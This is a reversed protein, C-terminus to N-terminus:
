TTPSWPPLATPVGAVSTWSATYPPTTATGIKTAGNFFEVKAPSGGVATANAALPITAPATFTAGNTPSTLTVTPPASGTVTINVATSMGSVGRADVATATPSLPGGSPTPWVFQYPATTATGIKTAGAYFDVHDISSDPSLTTATLTLPTSALVPAGPSPATMVVAPPRSDLIRVFAPASATVYGLNDYAKAVLTFDGVAPNTWSASFPPATPAAIVVGGAVYEVRTITAQPSSANVSLPVSGAANFTQGTTPTLLSVQPSSNAADIIVTVPAPNGTVSDLPLATEGLTDTVRAYIVHRGM